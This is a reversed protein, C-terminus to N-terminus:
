SKAASLPSKQRGGLDFNDPHLWTEFRHRLRPWESDLIAFWATDRSRNKYTTAQRFTGEYTFGLREAAARSPANLADCKWEFRRYGWRDFAESMMLYIAETAARTRQLVPAFTICGVEIVGHVPDIRLYSAIGCPEGEPTLVAFGMPDGRAFLEEYRECMEHSSTFPGYPMYTWLSPEAASFAKFLAASHTPLFPEVRVYRGRMKVPQAPTAGKWDRLPTGIPQGFANTPM